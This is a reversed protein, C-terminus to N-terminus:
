YRVGTAELITEDGEQALKGRVTLARQLPIERVVFGATKTDVKIVGTEDQLRFWCGAVPCKEILTGQLTVTQPTDGARVALVTRPKGQPPLGKVRGSSQGCGNVALLGALCWAHFCRMVYNMPGAGFGTRFSTFM